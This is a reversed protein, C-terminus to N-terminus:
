VKLNKFYQSTLTKQEYLDAAIKQLLKLNDNVVQFSKDWYPQLDPIDFIMYSIFVDLIRNFDNEAGMWNFKGSYFSEAIIGALLSSVLYEIEDQQSWDDIQNEFLYDSLDYCNAETWVNKHDGASGINKNPIITITTGPLGNILDILVHGAEHYAVEMLRDNGVKAPKTVKFLKKFETAEM